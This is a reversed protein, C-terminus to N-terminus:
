SEWKWWVELMEFTDVKVKDIQKCTSQWSLRLFRDIVVGDLWLHALCGAKCGHISLCSEGALRQSEHFLFLGFFFSFFHHLFHDNADRGAQWTLGEGVFHASDLGSMVPSKACVHWLTDPVWRGVQGEVVGRPAMKSKSASASSLPVHHWEGGSKGLISGLDRTRRPLLSDEKDHCLTLFSRLAAIQGPIQWGFELYLRSM